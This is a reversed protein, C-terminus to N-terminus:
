PVLDWMSCSFIRSAVVLVQPLWIFLYNNLFGVNCRELKPPFINKMCVQALDFSKQQENELDHGVLETHGWSSYCM